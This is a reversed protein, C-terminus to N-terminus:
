GFVFNIHVDLERVYLPQTSTKLWILKQFDISNLELRPVDNVRQQSSETVSNVRENNIEHIKLPLKLDIFFYRIKSFTRSSYNAM